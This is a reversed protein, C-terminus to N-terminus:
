KNTTTKERCKSRFLSFLLNRVRVCVCVGCPIEAGAGIERKSSAGKERDCQSRFVHM